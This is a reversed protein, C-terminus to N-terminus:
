DGFLQMFLSRRGCDESKRESMRAFLHERHNTDVPGDSCTAFLIERHNVDSPGDLCTDSMSKRHSANPRQKQDDPRAVPFGVINIRWFDEFCIREKEPLYIAKNLEKM